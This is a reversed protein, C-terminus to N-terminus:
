LLVVCFNVCSFWIEISHMVCLLAFIIWYNDGFYCCWTSILLVVLGFKLLMCLVFSVKVIIGSIIRLVVVGHM